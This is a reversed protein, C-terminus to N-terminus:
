AAAEAPAGGGLPQRALYDDIASESWRVAKPGVRIPRPFQGRKMLRYITTTSLSVGTEVERRRMLRDTM